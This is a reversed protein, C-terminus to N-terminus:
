INGDHNKDYENVIESIEDLSSMESLLRLMTSKSVSKPIGLKKLVFERKAKSNDCGSIKLEVLDGTTISQYKKRSPLELNKFANLIIDKDIGEVGLLGSASGVKKRSEKGETEPLVIHIIKDDGIINKLYSRIMNGASDSDTLVIIGDKSIKKLFEKKEKDKFIRFGDTTIVTADIISDLKIKDYKGEVIIPLDIKLM